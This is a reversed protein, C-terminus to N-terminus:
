CDVPQSYNVKRKYKVNNVGIQLTKISL